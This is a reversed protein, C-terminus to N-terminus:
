VLDSELFRRRADELIAAAKAAAEIDSPVIGGEFRHEIVDKFLALHRGLAELAQNKNWFKVKKLVGVQERDQGRGEFLEEVEVGAIARRIDAPIEHIQKLTGDDNFAPAIDQMALRLLEELVERAEIKLETNRAAALGAIHAQVEEDALLRSGEVHAGAPAYGARIAAQTGNLDKLYERAFLDRRGTLAM